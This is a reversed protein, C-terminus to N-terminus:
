PMQRKNRLNHFPSEEGRILFDISVEFYNSLAILTSISPDRSGNEYHSIAERSLKLALAVKQQSLKRTKRIQKLGLMM